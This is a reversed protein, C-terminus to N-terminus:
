GETYIAHAGHASTWSIYGGEFNQIRKTSGEQLYPSGIEESIPFGLPGGTCSLRLYEDAIADYVAYANYEEYWCIIGGEFNQYYGRTGQPSPAASVEDSTPFGM